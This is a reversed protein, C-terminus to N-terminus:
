ASIVATKLRFLPPKGTFVFKEWFAPLKARKPLFITFFRCFILFIDINKKVFGVFCTLIDGPPPIQEHRYVSM